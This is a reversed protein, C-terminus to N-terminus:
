ASNTAADMAAIAQAIRLSSAERESPVPKEAGDNGAPPEASALEALRSRWFNWRELSRPPVGKCLLGTPIAEQAEEDLGETLAMNRRLLHACKTLWQTAVWLYCEFVVREQPTTELAKSIEWYPLVMWRPFEDKLLRSMFSNLRKWADVDESSYDELETPDNWKDFLYENLNPLKAWDLTSGEFEVVPGGTSHLTEIVAVLAAHWPHDVPVLWVASLFVMWLDWLLGDADARSESSIFFQRLDDALKAAVTAPDHSSELAATFTRIIDAEGQTEEPEHLVALDPDGSSKLKANLISLVDTQGQTQNPENSVGPNINAAM